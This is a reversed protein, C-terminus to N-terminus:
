PGARARRRHREVGVAELLRVRDDVGHEAGAELARRAVGGVRHDEGDVRRARPHDGGVDGAADVGRGALDLARRHAREGGRGEVLGLGPEPDRGALLVRADDLDDVDADRRARGALGLDAQDAAAHQELHRAAGRGRRLEGGAVDEDDAARVPQGARGRHRRQGRHAGSRAVHRDARGM